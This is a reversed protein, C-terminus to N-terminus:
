DTEVSNCAPSSCTFDSWSGQFTTPQNDSMFDRFMDVRELEAAIDREGTVVTKSSTVWGAKSPKEVVTHIPQLIPFPKAM